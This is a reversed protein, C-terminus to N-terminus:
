HPGSRAWPHQTQCVHELTLVFTFSSTVIYFYFCLAKFNRSQMKCLSFKFKVVPNRICTADPELEVRYTVSSRLDVREKVFIQLFLVYGPQLGNVSLTAAIYIRWRWLATPTTFIVDDTHAWYHSKEWNPYNPSQYSQLCFSFHSVSITSFTKKKLM